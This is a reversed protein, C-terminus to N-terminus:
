CLAGNYTLFSAQGMVANHTLLREGGCGTGGVAGVVVGFLLFALCPTSKHWLISRCGGLPSLFFLPYFFVKEFQALHTKIYM